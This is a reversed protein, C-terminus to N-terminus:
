FKLIKWLKEKNKLKLNLIKRDSDPLKDLKFCISSTDLRM